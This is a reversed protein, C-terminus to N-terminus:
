FLPSSCPCTSQLTQCDSLSPLFCPINSSLLFVPMNITLNSLQSPAALFMPHAVIPSVHSIRLHFFCLCTSQLSLIPPLSPLFMPHEVILLYM